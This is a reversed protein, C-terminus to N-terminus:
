RILHLSFIMPVNKFEEYINLANKKIYFEKVNEDIIKENRSLLKFGLSLFLNELKEVTHIYNKITITNGNKNFTRKAGKKLAAPHFDTFFIEGNKKLLRNWENVIEEINQIHAIVLTSIIFDFSNADLSGLKNNQILYTEAGPFKTKLKELMPESLDCGLLKAPNLKLLEDWYRGTGCGFDLINKGNLKVKMLFEEFLNRDFYLMLNGNENDYTDAWLQYARQPDTEKKIIKLPNLFLNKLGNINNM